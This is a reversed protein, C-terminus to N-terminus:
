REFVLRFLCQEGRDRSCSAPDVVDGATAHGREILNSMTLPITLSM